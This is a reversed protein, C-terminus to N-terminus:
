FYRHSGETRFLDSAANPPALELPLITEPRQHEYTDEKGPLTLIIPSTPNKNFLATAGAAPAIPPSGITAAGSCPFSAPFGRRRLSRGPGPFEARSRWWRMREPTADAMPPGCICGRSFPKRPCASEFPQVPRKCRSSKSVMGALFAASARSSRSASAAIPM